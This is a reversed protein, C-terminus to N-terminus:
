QTYVEKLKDDIFKIDERSYPFNKKILDPNKDLLFTNTSMFCGLGGLLGILLGSYIGTFDPTSLTTGLVAGAAPGIFLSAYAFISASNLFKTNYLIYDRGEPGSTEQIIGRLGERIEACQPDKFIIEKRLTMKIKSSEEFKSFISDVKQELPRVYDSLTTEGSIISRVLVNDQYYTHIKKKIQKRYTHSEFAFKGFYFKNNFYFDLKDKLSFNDFKELGELKDPDGYVEKEENIKKKEDAIEKLVRPFQAFGMM